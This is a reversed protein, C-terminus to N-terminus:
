ESIVKRVKFDPNLEDEFSCVSNYMKIRVTYEDKEILSIKVDEEGGQVFIRIKDGVELEKVRCEVTLVTGYDALTPRNM